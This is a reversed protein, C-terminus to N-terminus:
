PNNYKYVIFKEKKRKIVLFMLIIILLINIAIFIKTTANTGVVAGTIGLLGKKKEVNVSKEYFDDTTTVEVKLQTAIAPIVTGPDSFCDGKAEFVFKYDKWLEADEPIKIYINIAERRVSAM